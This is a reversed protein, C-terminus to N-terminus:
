FPCTDSEQSTTAHNDHDTVWDTPVTTHCRHTPLQRTRPDSGAPRGAIRDPDRALLRQTSVQLDYTNRGEILAMAEGHPNLPALDVTVAWACFDFDLGTLIPMGCNCSTLIADRWGKRPHDILNTLWTM